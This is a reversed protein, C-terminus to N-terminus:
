AAPWYIGGTPGDSGGPATLICYAVGILHGVLIAVDWFGGNVDNLEADTLLRMEFPQDLAETSHIKM